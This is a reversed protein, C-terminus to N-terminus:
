QGFDAALRGELSRVSSGGAGLELKTSGARPIMSLEPVKARHFVDGTRISFDSSLEKASVIVPRDLVYGLPTFASFFRESVIPLRMNPRSPGFPAPLLESM